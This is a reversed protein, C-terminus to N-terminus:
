VQRYNTLYTKFIERVSHQEFLYVPRRTCNIVPGLTSFSSGLIFIGLMDVDNFLAHVRDISGIPTRMFFIKSLTM